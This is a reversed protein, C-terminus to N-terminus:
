RSILALGTVCVFVGMITTLSVTERYLVLGVPILLFAVLTNSLLGAVSLDWGSRYALLFGLELFVVACGLLLSAWNADKFIKILTGLTAAPTLTFYLLTSIISATVYTVILAAIPSVHSPTAKQCVHYLVSSVVVFVISLFKISM